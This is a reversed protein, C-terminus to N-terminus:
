LKWIKIISFTALEGSIVNGYRLIVGENSWAQLQFSKTGAITFAGCGHFNLNQWDGIKMQQSAGISVNDTVNRFRIGVKDATDSAVRAIPLTWEAYYDGSPLDIEWNTTDTAAGSLNSIVTNTIPTKVWTNYASLGTASYTSVSDTALWSPKNQGGQADIKSQLQSPSILTAETGTGTNWTSQSTTTLRAVNTGSTNAVYTGDIVKLLNNSQDFYAINIWADDAESRQKLINNTTDYWHMNAYTTSPSSSGSNNSGLAQLANNIDSRTASATQNAINLDHQSM